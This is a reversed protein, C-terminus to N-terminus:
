RRGTWGWVAVLTMLICIDWFAFQRDRNVVRCHSGKAVPIFDWIRLLVQSVGPCPVWRWDRGHRAGWKGKRWRGPRGAAGQVQRAREKGPAKVNATGKGPVDERGRWWVLQQEGKLDRSLCGKRLCATGSAKFWDVCTKTGLLLFDGEFQNLCNSYFPLKNGWTVLVNSFLLECVSKAERRLEAAKPSAKDESPSGGWQWGQGGPSHKGTRQPACRQSVLGPDWAVGVGLLIVSDTHFALRSPNNGWLLFPANNGSSPPRM